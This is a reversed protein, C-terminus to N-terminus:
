ACLVEPFSLALRVEKLCIASPRSLVLYSYLGEVKSLLSSLTPVLCCNTLLVLDVISLMQFSVAM